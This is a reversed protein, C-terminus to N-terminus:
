RLPNEEDRPGITKEFAFELLGFVQEKSVSPFDYLFMELSDGNELWNLLMRVPVRTGPFVPVGSVIEPDQNVVGAKVCAELAKDQKM